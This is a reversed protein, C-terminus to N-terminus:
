NAHICLLILQNASHPQQTCHNQLTCTTMAFERMQDSFPPGGSLGLLVKGKILLASYRVAAVDVDKRHAYNARTLNGQHVQNFQSVSKSHVRRSKSDTRRRQEPYSAGSCSNYRYEFASSFECTLIKGQM